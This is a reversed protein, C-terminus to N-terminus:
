TDGTGIHGAEALGMHWKWASASHMSKRTSDEVGRAQGVAYAQERAGVWVDIKGQKWAKGVLVGMNYSHSPVLDCALDLFEAMM